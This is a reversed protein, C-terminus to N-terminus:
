GFKESFGYNNLTMFVKGNESLNEYLNEIEKKSKCEVFMSVAPSFNWPHKIYSDSCMFQKGNLLFTAKMVTGEKAPGEKGYRQIELVKSNDFLQLYFNMAEEANDEQFTLFTTIQAKM